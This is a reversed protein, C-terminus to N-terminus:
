DKESRIGYGGLIAFCVVSGVLNVYSFWVSMVGPTATSLKGILIVSFIVGLIPLIVLLSIVGEDSLRQNESVVRIGPLMRVVTLGYLICATMPWEPSTMFSHPHNKPDSPWNAGLVLLPLLAFFIEVVVRAFAKKERGAV